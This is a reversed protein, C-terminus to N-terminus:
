ATTEDPAEPKEKPLHFRDLTSALCPMACKMDENWSFVPLKDVAAHLAWADRAVVELQGVLRDWTDVALDLAELMEQSQAQAKNREEAMQDVLTQARDLAMEVKQVKDDFSLGKWWEKVQVALAQCDSNGM